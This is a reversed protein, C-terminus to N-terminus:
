SMLTGLGATALRERDGIRESANCPRFISRIEIDASANVVCDLDVAFHSRGIGDATRRDTEPMRGAKAGVDLGLCTAKRDARVALPEKYRVVVVVGDAQDIQRCPLDEGLLVQPGPFYVRRLGPNGTAFKGNGHGPAAVILSEDGSRPVTFNNSQLNCSRCM